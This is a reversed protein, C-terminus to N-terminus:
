FTGTYFARIIVYSPEYFASTNYDDIIECMPNNYVRLIGDAFDEGEDMTATIVRRYVKGIQTAKPIHEALEHDVDTIDFHGNELGYEEIWDSEVQLPNECHLVDALSLQRRLGEKSIKNVTYRNRQHIRRSVREIMYCVFYLDNENIEEDPFYINKM